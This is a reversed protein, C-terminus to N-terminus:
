ENDDVEVIEYYGNNLVMGGTVDIIRKDILVGNKYIAFPKFDHIIVGSPNKIRFEYIRSNSCAMGDTRDNLRVSLNSDVYGNATGVEVGDFLIKRDGIRNWTFNHRGTIISSDGFSFEGDGTSSYWKNSYMTLHIRFSNQNNGLIAKDNQYENIYFDIFYEWDLQPLFTEIHNYKAGNRFLIYAPKFELVDGGSNTASIVGNEISIGDGATYIPITPKDLLDNYSGSTAVEAFTPKDLIDDWYIDSPTGGGRSLSGRLTGNGSLNSM